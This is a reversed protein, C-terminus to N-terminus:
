RDTQRCRLLAPAHAIGGCGRQRAAEDFIELRGGVQMPLMITVGRRVVKTRSLLHGGALSERRGV